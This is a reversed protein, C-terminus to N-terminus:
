LQDAAGPRDARRQFTTSLLPKAPDLSVTTTAPAASVQSVQPYPDYYDATTRRNTGPTLSIPGRSVFPRSGPVGPIHSPHALDFQVVPAQSGANIAWIADVQKARCYADAAPMESISLGQPGGLRPHSTLSTINQQGLAELASLRPTPDAASAALSGSLAVTITLLSLRQFSM